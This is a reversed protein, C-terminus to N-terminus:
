QTDLGMVRISYEILFNILEEPSTKRDTLNWYRILQYNGHIYMVSVLETNLPKIQGKNAADDLLVKFRFVMTKLFEDRKQQLDSLHRNNLIFQGEHPNGNTWWNVAARMSKFIIQRLDTEGQIAEEQCSFYSRAIRDFIEEFITEKNPFYFYLSGVSVGSANCIDQISTNEYGKKAFLTLAQDLIHQKKAEKQKQVHKPTRYPV